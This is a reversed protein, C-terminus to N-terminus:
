YRYKGNQFDFILILKGNKKKILVSDQYKPNIRELISDSESLYLNILQADKVDINTGELAKSHLFNNVKSPIWVTDGQQYHNKIKQAIVPYPNQQRHHSFTYKQPKDQYLPLFLGILSVLQIVAWFLGLSRIWIGQKFLYETFGVSIMIGFPLSFSAYRLFFGTTTKANIAAITLIVVPFLIQLIGWVYFDKEKPALSKIWNYIAVIFALLLVGGIKYGYKQYLDNTWFFQDSLISVIKKYLITPSSPEIWGTIPGNLQLYNRYQEAADAQYLLFYKGPGLTMWLLFPILYLPSFLLFNKWVSFSSKKYGLFCVQVLLIVGTLYTSFLAGLAGLAWLFHYKLKPKEFVILYYYYNCFTAFFMSTTYNRAQQSYIIFFPEIIALLVISYVWIYKKHVRRAWYFLLLITCLNFFVSVFRFSSDSKGLIISAWKLSMDHLLSNGSVDGAADAALWASLGKPKWFKAPTFTSDPSMWNPMGGLNTKGVALMISQKEDGFLGFQGIHHMRIAFASAILVFLLFFQAVKKNMGLFVFIM